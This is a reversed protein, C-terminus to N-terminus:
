QSLIGKWSFKGSAPVEWLDNSICKVVETKTGRLLGAFAYESLTDPVPHRGWSPRWTPAWRRLSRFVNARIPRVGSRFIWRAAAISLWRM